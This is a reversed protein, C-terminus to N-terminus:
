MGFCEISALRWGRIGAPRPDFTSKEYPVRLNGSTGESPKRHTGSPQPPVFIVDWAGGKPELLRSFFTPVSVALIVAEVLWANVAVEL